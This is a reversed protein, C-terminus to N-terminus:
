SQTEEKQAVLFQNLIQALKDKDLPKTLYEDMGAELFRERDGKLANATLAVIPTHHMNKIQEYELIQSTAEIGNLNPMNEDMLILDYYDNKYCSVAEVGDNAIDFILGFKKLILSMFMQNAKNDEVLLIKKNKLQDINSSQITARKKYTGVQVPIEFYFRSGNGESSELKLEGGLMSILKSSIALGLGTGGYKRTTSSEAQSFAKFIDAQKNEPIGIGNDKVSIHLKNDTYKMLLEIRGNRPTFKIANSLLNAIVQKIRLPDSVLAKPIEKDIKFTLSVSKESAKARFLDTITSLEEFTNFDVKEISLNGSEIKSFDLIDNIIGLLTTSSSQITQIYKLKEGDSEKEKLIDIFGLIANLPTRIEHSMNALFESKAKSAQKSRDAMDKATQNSVELNESNKLIQNSIMNSTYLLSGIVFIVALLEYGLYKDKKILIESEIKNIQYITQRLLNENNNKIYEFKEIINQVKSRNKKMFDDFNGSNISSYFLTLTSQLLILDKQLKQLSLRNYNDYQTGYLKPQYSISQYTNSGDKLTGGLRLVTAYDSVLQLKREINEKFYNFNGDSSSIIIQSFDDRASIISQNIKEEITKKIQLNKTEQGLDDILGSFIYNLGGIIFISAIFLHFLSQLDRYTQNKTSKSM